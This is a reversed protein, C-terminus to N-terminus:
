QRFFLEKLMRDKVVNEVHEDITRRVFETEMGPRPAPICTVRGEVEYRGIARHVAFHKQTPKETMPSQL